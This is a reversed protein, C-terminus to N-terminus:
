KEVTLDAGVIACCHLPIGWVTRTEQILYVQFLGDLFSM